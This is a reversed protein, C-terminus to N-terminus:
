KFNLELFLISFIEKFPGKLSLYVLTSVNSLNSKDLSTNLFSAIM